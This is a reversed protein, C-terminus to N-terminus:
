DVASLVLGLQREVFARTGEDLNSHEREAKALVLRAIDESVDQCWGEAVNFVIVQRPREYQGEIM